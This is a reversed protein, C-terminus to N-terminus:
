LAKALQHSIKVLYERSLEVQTKMQKAIKVDKVIEFIKIRNEPKVEKFSDFWELKIDSSQHCYEKLGQETYILNQVTEVKLKEPISDTSTVGLDWGVRRLENDILNHPTDVLCYILEAEDLGTLDMYVSLQYIYWKNKIETDHLPYSSFSWCSKIDRVKGDINDPTGTFYDNEFREENKFILEGTVSTYLSISKEEQMLGKEMYKNKIEKSRGFVVEQFIDNLLTQATKLLKPEADRKDRLGVLTKMQAPTLSKNIDKLQLDELTKAQLPTLNPKVGSMLAGM